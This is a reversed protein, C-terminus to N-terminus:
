NHAHRMRGKEVWNGLVAQKVLAAFARANVAGKKTAMVRKETEGLLTPDVLVDDFLGANNTRNVAGAM